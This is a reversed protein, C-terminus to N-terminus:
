HSRRAMPATDSSSPLRSSTRAPEGMSSVTIADPDTLVRGLRCPVDFWGGGGEEGDVLDGEERHAGVPVDAEAGVAIVEGRQARALCEHEPM